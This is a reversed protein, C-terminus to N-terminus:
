LCCPSGGALSYLLTMYWQEQTWITLRLIEKNKWYQANTAMLNWNLLPITVITCHPFWQCWVNHWKLLAHTKRQIDINIKGNDENYLLLLGSKFRGEYSTSQKMCFIWVTNRESHQQMKENKHPFGFFFTASSHEEATLIFIREVTRGAPRRQALIFNALIELDKKWFVEFFRRCSRLDVM